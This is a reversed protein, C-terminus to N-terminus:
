ILAIGWFIHFLSLLFFFPMDLMTFATLNHCVGELGTFTLYVGQTFGTPLWMDIDIDLEVFDGRNVATVLTDDLLTWASSDSTIDQVYVAM